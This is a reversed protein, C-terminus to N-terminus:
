ITQFILPLTIESKSRSRPLPHSTFLKRLQTSLRLAVPISGNGSRLTSPMTKIQTIQGSSDVQLHFTLVGQLLPYPEILNQIKLSHQDIWSQVMKATLSGTIFPRPEIFWGHIVIRGQAPNSVGRVEKVGHPIRPDFVLLQNFLPAIEQFVDDKEMGRESLRSNWHDLIETRLLRTEGGKFIRNKWDTLSYVFAWPGHPLDGHLEQSCGEVYVSLWPPSITHCGLNQRGWQVLSEHLEQYINKPFYHFAPTRLFTYQNPVHWYDWVFRKPHANRSDKFQDQFWRDLENAKKFFKQEKIFIKLSM